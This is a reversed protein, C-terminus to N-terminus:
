WVVAIQLLTINSIILLIVSKNQRLFVCLTLKHGGSFIAFNAVSFWEYDTAGSAVTRSPM